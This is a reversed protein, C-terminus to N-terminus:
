KSGYLQVELEQVRARLQSNEKVVEDYSPTPKWILKKPDIGKYISTPLVAADEYGPHYPAEEVLKNMVDGILNIPM